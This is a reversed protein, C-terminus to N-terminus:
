MYYIRFMNLKKESFVDTAKKNLRCTSHYSLLYTKDTYDYGTVVMTHTMDTDKGFISLGGYQIIDGVKIDSNWLEEQNKLFFDGNGYSDCKSDWFRGFEEASVWPSTAPQCLEFSNDLQNVSSVRTYNGNKRYVKWRGNYHQKGYALLCQSAFNACDGGINTTDPYAGVLKYADENPKNWNAIVYKYGIEEDFFVPEIIWEDNRSGNYDFQVVNGEDSCSANQVTVAKSYNSPGTKIAFTYNEKNTLEFVFKQAASDNTRWLQINVNNNPNNGGNVDLCYNINRINGEVTSGLIAGITYLGNGRHILIWRQNDNGNFQCQQVNAGNGATAMYVDLYRGSYANKIYVQAGDLEQHHTYAKTQESFIALFGIVALFLISFYLIKKKM